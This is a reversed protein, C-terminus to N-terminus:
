DLCAGTAPMALSRDNQASGFVNDQPVVFAETVPLDLRDQFAPMGVSQEYRQSAPPGVATVVLQPAVQLRIDILCRLEVEPDIRDQVLVVKSEREAPVAHALAFLDDVSAHEANGLDHILLKHRPFGKLVDALGEVLEPPAERRTSLV